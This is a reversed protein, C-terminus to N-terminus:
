KNLCSLYHKSDDATLKKNIKCVLSRIFREAIGSNGENHTLYILINDDLWKEMVNNYFESEEDVWIKNPKCKSENWYYQRCLSICWSRAWHSVAYFRCLIGQLLYTEKKFKEKRYLYSMGIASHWPFKCGM